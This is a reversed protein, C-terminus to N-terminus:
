VIVRVPRILGDQVRVLATLRGGCKAQMTTGECVCVGPTRDAIPGVPLFGGNSLRTAETETLALALIDDLVTEVPLLVRSEMSIHGLSELYELSFANEESFKGCRIRRLACVHGCCRLREAMDRALSRVYTGKGCAVEFDSVDPEPRGVLTLSDIRIRRPTLEVTENRRALDYARRGNVHVASYAPPTQLIDGTFEPLVARIDEDSPRIDSRAIVEGEADDTATTQGWRVSFRYAKAGDMIHSITKTAEGLAVPLVGSAAPDLTGGHGAKQANFLRKVIAVVSTSGIGAPKDVAVWGSVPEGKRRRSM